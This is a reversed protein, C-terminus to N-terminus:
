PLGHGPEVRIELEALLQPDGAAGGEDHVLPPLLEEAIHAVPQDFGIKLFQQALGLPTLGAPALCKSPGQRTLSFGTSLSLVFRSCQQGLHFSYVMYRLLKLSKTLSTNASEETTPTKHATVTHDAMRPLPESQAAGM